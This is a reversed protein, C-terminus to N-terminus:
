ARVLRRNEPRLLYSGAALALLAAPAALNAVPDGVFWHSAIAGTLDFAIGAYAWEKILPTRPALLAAAGLLKWVGLIQAVYLPYGLSEMGAAVEPALSLDFVGGAAFALAVLGTTAWYALQRGKTVPSTAPITTATM